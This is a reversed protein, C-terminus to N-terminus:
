VPQVSPKGNPKQLPGVPVVYGTGFRGSYPKGFGREAVRTYGKRSATHDYHCGQTLIEDVTMTKEM